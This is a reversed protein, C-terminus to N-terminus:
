FMIKTIYYNLLDFFFIEEMQEKNFDPSLSGNQFFRSIFQYSNKGFELSKIIKNMTLNSENQRLYEYFVDHVGEFDKNRFVIM